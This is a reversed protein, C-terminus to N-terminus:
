GAGSIVVFIELGRGIQMFYESKAHLIKIEKSPLLFNLLTLHNRLSCVRDNCIFAFGECMDM